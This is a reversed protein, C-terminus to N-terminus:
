KKREIEYILYDICDICKCEENIEAQLEQRYHKFLEMTSAKNELEHICAYLDVIDERCGCKKLNVITDAAEDVM